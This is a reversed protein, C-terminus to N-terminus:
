AREDSQGIYRLHGILQGSAVVAQNATTFGSGTNWFEGRYTNSIGNIVIGTGGTYTIGSSQVVGVFPKQNSLAVKYPLEVYLNGAATGASSWSVDFWVDTILGQRLSWGAQHNYTFTGATTAGKLIPTWLQRGQGFDARIDGNIGQALQEYMQQLSFNLERLYSEMDEPRGTSIQEIRLPFIINTPLTM